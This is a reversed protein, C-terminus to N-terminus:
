EEKVNPTFLKIWVEGKANAIPLADLKLDLHGKENELVVGIKLTSYKTEGDKQYTGTAVVANFKVTSKSM